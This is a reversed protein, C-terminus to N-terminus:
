SVPPARLGAISCCPALVALSAPSEYTVVKITSPEPVSFIIAETSVSQLAVYKSFDLESKEISAIKSGQVPCDDSDSDHHDSEHSTHEDNVQGDVECREETFCIMSLHHHHPLITTSLVVLAAMLVM